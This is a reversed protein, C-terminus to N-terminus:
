PLSWYLLGSWPRQVEACKYVYVCLVCFGLGLLLPQCPIPPLAGFVQPVDWFGCLALFRTPEVCNDKSRWVHVLAHFREHTGESPVVLRDCPLPVRLNVFEQHLFFPITKGRESHFLCAALHSLQM